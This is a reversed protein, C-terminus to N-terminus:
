FISEYSFEALSGEGFDEFGLRDGASFVDGEFAHFIVEVRQFLHFFESFDLGELTEGRVGVDDVEEFDEIVFGGATERQNEFEHFHVHVLGDFAARVVEGLVSDLEVDVLEHLGDAVHVLVADEVAVDFGFVDEEEVIGNVQLHCQQVADRLVNICIEM